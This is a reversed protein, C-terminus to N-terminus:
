YFGVSFTSLILAVLGRNQQMKSFINAVHQMKLIVFIAQQCFFDIKTAFIQLM